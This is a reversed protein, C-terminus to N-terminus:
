KYGRRLRYQCTECTLYAEKFRYDTVSDTSVFVIRLTDQSSIVGAQDRVETDRCHAVLNWGAGSCALIAADAFLWAASVACRRGVGLNNVEEVVVIRVTIFLVGRTIISAGGRWAPHCICRLRQERRRVDGILCGIPRRPPRDQWVKHRNRDESVASIWPTSAPQPDLM